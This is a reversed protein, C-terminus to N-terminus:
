EPVYCIQEDLWSLQKIKAIGHPSLPLVSVGSKVELIESRLCHSIVDILPLLGRVVSVSLRETGFLHHNSHSRSEPHFNEWCCAGRLKSSILTELVDQVYPGGNFRAALLCWM